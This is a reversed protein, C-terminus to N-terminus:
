KKINKYIEQTINGASVRIIYKKIETDVATPNFGLEEDTQISVNQEAIKKNDALIEWHFNTESSFNKIAFSLDDSKPNTFYLAYWDNNNGAKNYNSDISFLYVSSALFLSLFFLIIKTQQQM